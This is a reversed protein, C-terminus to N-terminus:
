PRPEEKRVYRRAHLAMAKDVALIFVLITLSALASGVQRSIVESSRGAAAVWGIGVADLATVNWWFPATWILPRTRM